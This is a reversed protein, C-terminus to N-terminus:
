LYQGHNTDTLPPQEHGPPLGRLRMQELQHQAAMQQTAIAAQIGQFLGELWGLLQAQAIRIQSETPVGDGELPLTIRDLEEVLPGSLGTKLEAIVKGHIDRLTERAHEDLPARRVEELMERVMVAIRLLKAPQEVSAQESREPTQSRRRPPAHVEEAEGLAENAVENQGIAADGQETTPGSMGAIRASIANADAATM